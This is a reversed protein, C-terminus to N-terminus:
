YRTSLRFLQTGPVSYQTSCFPSYSLQSLAQNAVLLGGTRDRDAGGSFRRLTIQFVGDIADNAQASQQHRDYGDDYTARNRDHRHDQLVLLADRLDLAADIRIGPWWSTLDRSHSLKSPKALRVTDPQEPFAWPETRSTALTTPYAPQLRANHCFLGGLLSSPLRTAPLEFSV